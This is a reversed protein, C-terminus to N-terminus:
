GRTLDAGGGFWSHTVNGARDYVEFYRYNAHVTPVMPSRPHLVLSIGCAFFKDGEVKLQMRIANTIDGYVESTNVGGKEFVAGNQIVRTIGGGGEERTWKDELFKGKGDIDEVEHCIKNQIERIWSSFQEKM